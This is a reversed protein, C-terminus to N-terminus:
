KCHTNLIQILQKARQTATHYELCKKRASNAIKIREDHHILYHKSKDILEKTNSFHEIEKGEEFIKDLLKSPSLRDCITMRGAIAAEFLRRTIDGSTAVTFNISANKYLNNNESPSLYNEGNIRPSVFNQQFEKKLAQVAESWMGGRPGAATTIIGNCPDKTYSYVLEDGWHPFWHVKKGNQSYWNASDIDSTLVVDAPMTHLLNYRTIQPEDDGSAVMLINQFNDKKWFEQVHHPITGAHALLVVDYKEIQMTSFLKNKCDASQFNIEVIQNDQKLCHALGQTAGWTKDLQSINCPEDGHLMIIKM